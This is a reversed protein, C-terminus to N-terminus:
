WRLGRAVASAIGGVVVSYLLVGAVVAGAFFIAAYLLWQLVWPAITITMAEEGM